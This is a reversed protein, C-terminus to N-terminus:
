ESGPRLTESQSREKPAHLPRPEYSESWGYSECLLVNRYEEKVEAYDVFLKYSSCAPCQRDASAEAIRIAEEFLGMIQATADLATSSDSRRANKAHTLWNVFSWTEEAVRRLYQRRSQGSPGPAVVGAVLATWGKFDGSKLSTDLEGSILDKALIASFSTLAERCRMGVAQFDEVETAENDAEAAQEWQRRARQWRQDPFTPAELAARAAVRACVGIHFSLVYDMSPYTTQDYLNTPNTIVWWRGSRAHM